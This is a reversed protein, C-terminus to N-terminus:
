LCALLVPPNLIFSYQDRREERENLKSGKSRTQLRNVEEDRERDEEESPQIEEPSTEDGM